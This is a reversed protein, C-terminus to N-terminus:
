QIVNGDLDTTFRRPGVTFQMRPVGTKARDDVVVSWQQADPAGSRQRHTTLVRWVISSRVLHPDFAPMTPAENRQSITVPFKATRQRRATTSDPGAFDVYAGVESGAGVQVARSHNGIADGLGRAIGWETHFDLTPMLSGNPYFFVTRTEPMTSVAMLIETSSHDIIQRDVIQLEQQQDSGSVAAGARFLAGVDALNYDDPDFAAQDVYALDSQVQQIQGERFAWTEPQSGEGLVSVSADHARVEVMIVRESGAADVLQEVVKEASGPLTLDVQPSPTASATAPSSTVAPRETVCGALLCAVAVLTSARRAPRTSM